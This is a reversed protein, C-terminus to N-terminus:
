FKRDHVMPRMTGGGELCMAPVRVYQGLKCRKTAGVGCSRRLYTNSLVNTFHMTVPVVEENYLYAKHPKKGSM